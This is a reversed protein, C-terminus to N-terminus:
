AYYKFATLINSHRRPTIDVHYYSQIDCSLKM